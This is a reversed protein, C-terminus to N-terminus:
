RWPGLSVPSCTTSITRWGVRSSGLRKWKRRNAYSPRPRRCPRRGNRSVSNWSSTSSACNSSPAIRQEEVARREQVDILVGPFRLPIGDPGHEVLGNAELWYYLGDARRVRYQHAYRGGRTIAEEIAKALGAQDDPHVTEVVQALSIGSRGLAPDLGFNIAFAEDVTFHDSPLDWVWTGIIAGAALALQVREVNARALAESDRLAADGLVRGTTENTFIFLGCGCRHRRARAFVLVVM